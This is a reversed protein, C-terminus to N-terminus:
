EWVRVGTTEAYISRVDDFFGRIADIGFEKLKDPLPITIPLSPGGGLLEISAVDFSDGLGRVDDIAESEADTLLSSFIDTSRLPHEIVRKKIYVLSKSFQGEDEEAVHASNVLVPKLAEVKAPQMGVGELAGNLADAAWTGLGSESALPLQNLGVEIAGTLSELGNSYATLMASWIDLVIGAAGVAVGGDQRLGDLMSNIANRGEESGEDIITAASVAARAGLTGEALVFGSAFIGGAPEWGNNVVLAVAGSAGPPSVEIRKDLVEKLVEVLRDLLGGTKEKVKAKEREAEERAEKYEEAAQAVADYHYEFGNDISTSAQAVKGMSSARFNCEPCTVLDHSDLYSISQYSHVAGTAGPCDEYAHMMLETEEEEDEDEDDDGDGEVPEETVLYIRDTYLSTETMEETNRPLHPFNADFSDEDEHVYGEDRMVKAAYEYFTLRLRWRAIDETSVGEPEDHEARYAYYHRARNLAVSFSWADVSEYRPNESGSLGMLSYAREYMCYDPDDGCDRKFAELKVEAAKQAAKEAKEAGDRIEDANEDIEDALEESSDENDAVIDGGKDPVLLAVSVYSSGSINDNNEAAVGAACAAAFFPLAEQLKELAAKARDSFTDRTKFINEGAQILEASAPATAPTCLAVIGLGFAAVGTLSLSLVVADCFRAVIMFEAVQNEAALAAADAVDQVEASATNLRYVQASTFVLALTILLSLVMGTTTVGEDDRFLSGGGSRERKEVRHIRVDPCHDRVGAGQGKEAMFGGSMIAM